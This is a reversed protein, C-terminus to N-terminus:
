HPRHSRGPCISCPQQGAPAGPWCLVLGSVPILSGPLFFGTSRPPSRHHGVAAVAATPRDSLAQQPGSLHTPSATNGVPSVRLLLSGSTSPGAHPQSMGNPLLFIPLYSHFVQKSLSMSTESPLPYRPFCAMVDAWRCFNLGSCPLFFAKLFMQGPYASKLTSDMGRGM